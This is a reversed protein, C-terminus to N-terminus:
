QLHVTLASDAGRALRTAIFAFRTHSPSESASHQFRIGTAAALHHRQFAISRSSISSSGGRSSGRVAACSASATSSSAASNAAAAFCRGRWAQVSLRAAHDRSRSSGRVAACVASRISSNSINNPAAACCQRREVRLSPRGAHVSQQNGIAGAAVPLCGPVPDGMAVRTRHVRRAGSQRHPNM